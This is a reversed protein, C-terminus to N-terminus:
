KPGTWDAVWELTSDGLFWCAIPLFVASDNMAVMVLGVATADGDLPTELEAIDINTRATLEIGLRNTSTGDTKQRSVLAGYTQSQYRSVNQRDGIRETQSAWDQEHVYAQAFLGRQNTARLNIILHEDHPYRLFAIQQSANVAKEWIM